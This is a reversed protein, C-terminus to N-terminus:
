CRGHDAIWNELCLFCDKGTVIILSFAVYVLDRLIHRVGLIEAADGAGYCGCGIELGRAVASIIAITFVVNMTLVLTGSARTFLGSILLLGCFLELWPLTIATINVLYFPLIDYSSIDKAFGSIHSIKGLSTYIFISGLLLRSIFVSAPHLVLKKM